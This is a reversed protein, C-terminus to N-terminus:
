QCPKENQPAKEPVGASHEGLSEVTDAMGKLAEHFGQSYTRPPGRSRCLAAGDAREGPVTAQKIARTAPKMKIIRVIRASQLTLNRSSDICVSCGRLRHLLMRIRKVWRRNADASTRLGKNTWSVYVTFLGAQKMLIPLQTSSCLRNLDIKSYLCNSDGM